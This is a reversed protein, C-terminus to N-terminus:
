HIKGSALRCVGTPLRDANISSGSASGGSAIALTEEDIRGTQLPAASRTGVCGKVRESAPDDAVPHTVTSQLNSM